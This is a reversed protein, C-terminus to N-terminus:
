SDWDDFSGKKANQLLREHSPIMKDGFLEMETGYAPNTIVPGLGADEDSNEPMNGDGFLHQEFDLPPGKPRKREVLKPFFSKPKKMQKWHQEHSFPIKDGFLFQETSAKPNQIPPGLAGDTDDNPPM